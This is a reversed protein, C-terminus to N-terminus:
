VYQHEEVTLSFKLWVHVDSGLREAPHVSSTSAATQGTLAYIDMVKVNEYRQAEVEL